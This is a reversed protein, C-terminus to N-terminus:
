SPKPLEKLYLTHISDDLHHDNSNPKRYKELDTILYKNIELFRYNEQICYNKVISNFLQLYVNRQNLTIVKTYTDLKAYKESLHNVICNHNFESNLTHLLENDDLHGLPIECVYVNTINLSKIFDVYGKATSKIFSECDYDPYKNYMHNLIFDIDVKGFFFLYHKYRGGEITLRITKNAGTLSNSNSLGRASSAPFYHTAMVKEFCFSHSDGFCVFTEM